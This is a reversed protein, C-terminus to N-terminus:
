LPNYGKQRLNDIILNVAYDFDGNGGDSENALRTMGKNLRMKMEVTQITRTEIDLDSLYYGDLKKPLRRKERKTSDIRVNSAWGDLILIEAGSEYYKQVLMWLLRNHLRVPEFDFEHVKQGYWKYQGLTKYSIELANRIGTISNEESFIVDLILFGNNKRNKVEVWPQENGKATFEETKTNYIVIEGKAPICLFFITLAITTEMWTRM